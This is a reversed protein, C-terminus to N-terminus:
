GTDAKKRLKEFTREALSEKAAKVFKDKFDERKSSNAEYVKNKRSATAQQIANQVRELQETLVNIEENFMVWRHYNDNNPHRFGRDNALSKDEKLRTRQSRLTIEADRLAALWADIDAISMAEIEAATKIAYTVVEESGIEDDSRPACMKETRDIRFDKSASVALTVFPLADDDSEEVDVIEVVIGERFLDYLDRNREVSPDLKVAFKNKKQGTTRRLILRSKEDSM